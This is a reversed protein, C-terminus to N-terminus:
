DRHRQQWVQDYVELVSAAGNDCHNAMLIAASTADKREIAAVIEECEEISPEIRQARLNWMSKPIQSWLNALLDRLRENPCRDRIIKHFRENLRTQAEVEQALRRREALVKRLRKIDGASIYPVALRTALSELHSRIELLEELGKRSPTSVRAGRYAERVVFGEAELTILAERIPMRSAGIHASLTREKLREGPQFHGSLIAERLLDAVRDKVVRNDTLRLDRMDKGQRLPLLCRANM